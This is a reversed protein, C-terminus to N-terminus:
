RLLHVRTDPAESTTLTGAVEYVVGYPEATVFDCSPTQANHTGALSNETTDIM